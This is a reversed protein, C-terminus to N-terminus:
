VDYQWRVRRVSSPLEGEVTGGVGASVGDPHLLHRGEGFTLCQGGGGM